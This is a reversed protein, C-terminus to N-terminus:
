DETGDGEPPPTALAIRPVEAVTKKQVEEELDLQKANKESLRTRGQMSRSVFFTGKQAKDGCLKSEVKASFEAMERSNHPKIEVTLTIKRTTEAETNSDMINDAAKQMEADFMEIVAGGLMTRLSAENTRIVDTTM